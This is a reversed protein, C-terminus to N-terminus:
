EYYDFIYNGIATVLGKPQGAADRDRWGNDSCCLYAFLEDGLAVRFFVPTGDTAREESPTIKGSYHKGEFDLELPFSKDVEM